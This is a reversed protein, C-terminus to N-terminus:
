MEFIEGNIFMVCYVVVFVIVILDFDYECELWEQIIEVYLLGLFGCCFGFGLVEFIELEFFFVVDNFKFKEFVDCLKCYDEIDIFYLGLFVVLQVFKFGFFLEVIQCDSGILIDGVQVDQIDKIGVVVWGVMGVLFEQGVVFGFSFIGVKDVEFNKGVNMLWVGDKVKMIGEFVCVFLIVGQYVDFFFDFILVKFLVGFDGVFLLICEVVVELIEFIGIGIKGLVWVVDEVLIGIVEEFECVVGEFDVVFLDIKNIVLVIEFNNDIVFYVNVIIQVEVGQLVDVFLLVGECVVFLCSVEYNFDVYGLM